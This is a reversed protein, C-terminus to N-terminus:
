RNIGSAIMTLIPEDNIANEDVEYCIGYPIHISFNSLISISKMSRGVGSINM